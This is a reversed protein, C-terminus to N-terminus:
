ESICYLRSDSRVFIQGDSIAPSGNFPSEDDTFGKNHGIVTFEDGAEIIYSEGFRSFLLIQNGHAVPSSYDSARFGGSPRGLRPLRTRYIYEGTALEAAMFMGGTTWYMAEGVIVPTCIGSRIRKNWVTASESVDGTGNTRVAMGHGERSGMLYATGEQEILSACTADDLPSDAEWIKEGNTPDISIVKGPVHFVIQDGSESSVAIPTSWCNTFGPDEVSWVIEGDHKNIAVLQNGVVGANVVLLDGYLIPSSGGGWKAPDSKTGLSTQWVQTGDRDFAFLGTKGFFAYIREGDTTPTSSAYGHEQIFGKFPDEKVSSPVSARWLEKGSERDFALLHRELASEDGEPTPDIGYGTYCTVYVRDETVIPSSSGKGVLDVSWKLNQESSWEVPIPPGEATGSGNPGRFRTWSGAVVVSADVILFCMMLATVPKKMFLSRFHNQNEAIRDTEQSEGVRMRAIEVASALGAAVWCLAAELKDPGDRQERWYDFGAISEGSHTLRSM